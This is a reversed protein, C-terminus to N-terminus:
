DNNRKCVTILMKTDLIEAGADLAKLFMRRTTLDYHPHKPHKQFWEPKLGINAAFTHLLGLPAECYVMLHIGDTYIDLKETM